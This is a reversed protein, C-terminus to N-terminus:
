SMSLTSSDYSLGSGVSSVSEDCGDVSGGGFPHNKTKRKNRFSLGKKLRSGLKQKTRKAFSSSGGSGISDVAGATTSSEETPLTSLSEDCMANRLSHRQEIQHLTLKRRSTTNVPPSPKSLSTQKSIQFPNRYGQRQHQQQKEQKQKQGFYSSPSYSQTLQEIVGKPSQKSRRSSSLSAPTIEEDIRMLRNMEDSLKMISDKRPPKEGIRMTGYKSSSSNGNSTLAKSNIQGVVGVAVTRDNDRLAFRGMRSCDSYTELCVGQLPQLLVECANGGKVSIPQMPVQKNRSRREGSDDDHDNLLIWKVACKVTASHCHLTLVQSVTMCNDEYNLVMVQAHFSLVNRAPQAQTPDSLIQGRRLSSLRIATRPQVLFAVHEGASAEELGGELTIMAEQGFIIPPDEPFKVMMGNRLTGCVVKGVVITGVGKQDAFDLISVRLDKLSKRPVRPPPSLQDLAEFLTPGMYWKMQTTFELINDGAFASTPIFKINDLNYGLEDLYVGLNNQIREYMGQDYEIEDMKNVVVILQRVGFVSTLLALERTQQSSPSYSFESLSQPKSMTAAEDEDDESDSNSSSIDDNDEGNSHIVTDDDDDDFGDDGYDKHYEQQGEEAITVRKTSSTSTEDQPQQLEFYETADVVLVAADANAVGVIMNKVYESSGPTDLVTLRYQRTKMKHRILDMTPPIPTACSSSSSSSISLMSLRRSSSNETDDKDDDNGVLDLYSSTTTYPTENDNGEDDGYQQQQQPEGSLKTPSSPPTTGDLGEQISMLQTLAATKGVNSHGVFAVSLHQKLKFGTRRSATSEHSLTSSRSLATRRRTTRRNTTIETIEPSATVIDNELQQHSQRSVTGISMSLPLLPPSLSSSQPDRVTAGTGKTKPAKLSDLAQHLCPGHYWKMKTSPHMINDGTMSSVPIFPTHNEIRCGLQDLYVVLDRKIELYRQQSFEVTSDDMKNVAVIIQTIGLVSILLAHQTTQGHKGFGTEFGGYSADVVLLVADAHLPNVVMNQLCERDGPADMLLLKYDPTEIPHYGLYHQYHHQQSQGLELALQHQKQQELKMRNLIWGYKTPSADDKTESHSDNEDEKVLHEILVKDRGGSQCILRGVTTSKGSGLHGIVAVKMDKKPSLRRKTRPANTVILDRKQKLIDRKEKSSSVESTLPIESSLASSSSSSFSASSSSAHLQNSIPELAASASEKTQHIKDDFDNNNRQRIRRVNENDQSM